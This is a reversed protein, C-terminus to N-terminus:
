AAELRNTHGEPLVQAIYLASLLTFVFAQVTSLLMALLVLPLAFPVGIPLLSAVLAAGLSTFVAILMDEGMINGFLRVALSLPRAMESVMHIPLMLPLMMWEAPSGPSGAIHHLYRIPGLQRIGTIQVYVFVVLALAATTELLSTPAKLLPILGSLNMFLIYLFLTGLFPLHEGASRGLIEQLFEYVKEVVLEAANQFRGPVMRRRRSGAIGLAILFLAAGIAFLNGKWASAFGAVGAWSGGSTWGSLIEMIDPLDTLTSSATAVRADAAPYPAQAIVVLLAPIV